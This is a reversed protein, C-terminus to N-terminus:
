RTDANGGRRAGRAQQQQKTPKEVIDHFRLTALVDAASANPHETSLEDAIQLLFLLPM